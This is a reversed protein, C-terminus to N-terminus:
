CVFKREDSMRSTANGIRRHSSRRSAGSAAKPRINSRTPTGSESSITTSVSATSSTTAISPSPTKKKSASSRPRHNALQEPSAQEVNDPPQQSSRHFLSPESGPSRAGPSLLDSSVSLATHYSLRPSQDTSFSRNALASRASSSIMAELDGIRKMLQSVIADKEELKQTMSGLLERLRRNEVEMGSSFASLGAGTGGFIGSGMNNIGSDVVSSNASYSEPIPSGFLVPQQLNSPASSPAFFLSEQPFCSPTTIGSMQSMQSPSQRFHYPALNPPIPPTSQQEGPLDEGTEMDSQEQFSAMSNHHHSLRKEQLSQLKNPGSAEKEDYIERRHSGNGRIKPTSANQIRSKEPTVNIEGSGTASHVVSKSMSSVDNVRPQANNTPLTVTSAGPSIGSINAKNLADNFVNIEKSISDWSKTSDDQPTVFDHGAFLVEFEDKKPSVILLDAPQDVGDNQKSQKSSSKNDGATSCHSARVKAILRDRASTAMPSTILDSSCTSSAASIASSRSAVMRRRRANFSHQSDSNSRDRAVSINKTDDATVSVAKEDLPMDVDSSPLQNSAQPVAKEKATVDIVSSSSSRSNKHEHSKEEGGDEAKPFSYRKVLPYAPLPPSKEDHQSFALSPSSKVSKAATTSGPKRLNNRLNVLLAPTPIGVELNREEFKAKLEENDVTSAIRVPEVV